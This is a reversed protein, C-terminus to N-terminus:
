PWGAAAEWPADALSLNHGLKAPVWTRSGVPPTELARSAEETGSTEQRGVAPQVDTSSLAGSVAPSNTTPPPVQDAVMKSFYVVLMCM